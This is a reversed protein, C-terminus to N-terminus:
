FYLQSKFLLPKFQSRGSMRLSREIFVQVTKSGLNPTWLHLPRSYTNIQAMKCLLSSCGCIQTDAPPGLVLGGGSPLPIETKPSEVTIRLPIRAGLGGRPEITLQLKIRLLTYLEHVCLNM